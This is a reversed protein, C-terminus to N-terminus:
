RGLLVLINDNAVKKAVSEPLQGLVKLYYEVVEPANEYREETIGMDIGFVFRDPFELFLAKWDAKINGESDAPAIEPNRFGAIPNIASLDAYLNPNRAMLPLSPLM